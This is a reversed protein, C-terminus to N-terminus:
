VSCITPLTLHTYSVANSVVREEDDPHLIRDWLGREELWQRRPYGLVDEVSPSIYLCRGEIGPEFIYAVSPVGEPLPGYRNELARLVQESYPRM